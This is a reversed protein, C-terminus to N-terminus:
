GSRVSTSDPRCVIPVTSTRLSCCADLGYPTGNALQVVEDETDFPHIVVVPGFIEELVPKSDLLMDVLVTPKVMWGQGVGGTAIRGGEQEVSDIYGKM